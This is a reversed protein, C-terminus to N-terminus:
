AARRQDPPSSESVDYRKAIAAAAMLLARRVAAWMARDAAERRECRECM